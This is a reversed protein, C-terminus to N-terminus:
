RHAFSQLRKVTGGGEGTFGAKLVNGVNHLAPSNKLTRGRIYAV